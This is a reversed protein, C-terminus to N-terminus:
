VSDTFSISDRSHRLSNNTNIPGDEDFDAASSLKAALGKLNDVVIQAEHLSDEAARLEERVGRIDEPSSPQDEGMEMLRLRHAIHHRQASRDARISTAQDVLAM